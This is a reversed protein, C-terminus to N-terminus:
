YLLVERLKTRDQEGFGISDLYADLGGYQNVLHAQMGPIMNKATSEWEDPFGTERMDALREARNSVLAADSLFYDHEIAPGPVHLVMLILACILGTRDKGLTCHVLAPMSRSSTFLSLAERVDAGSQDLSVTSIGLLGIPILVNNVIIRSARLRMGLIAFFIVKFFNCWALRSLLHREFSRGTISIENYNIGSIRRPQPPFVISYLLSSQPQRKAAQQRLETQTRLDIITKIRLHDRLVLEDKPTADDPRASRFFVGERVLRRGLFRNVTLGVDRFNSVSQLAEPQDM